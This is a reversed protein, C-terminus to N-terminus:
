REHREELRKVLKVIIQATLGWIVDDNYQYIYYHTRGFPTKAYQKQRNSKDQFFAFPVGFVKHVESDEKVVQFGDALVGVFPTVEFGSISPLSDLHGLLTIDNSPVGIEEHTERLATNRVHKDDTEFAGGPFSVQGSHHKLDKNRQTLLVWPENNKWYFPFLVAASRKDIEAVGSWVSDPLRDQNLGATVQEIFQQM